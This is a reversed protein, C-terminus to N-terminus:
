QLQTPQSSSLSLPPNETEKRHSLGTLVAALTALIPRWSVQSATTRGKETLEKFPLRTLQNSKAM